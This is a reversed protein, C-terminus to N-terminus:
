GEDCPEEERDNWRRRSQGCLIVRVAQFAVASRSQLDLAPPPIDRKGQVLPSKRGANVCRQVTDTTMHIEVADRLIRMPGPKRRDIAALTVFIGAAGDRSIPCAGVSLADLGSVLLGRVALVAVAVM